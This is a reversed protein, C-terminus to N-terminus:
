YDVYEVFDFGSDSDGERKLLVVGDPDADTYGYYYQDTETEIYAEVRHGSSSELLGICPKFVRHKPNIWVERVRM